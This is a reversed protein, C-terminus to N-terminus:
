RINLIHRPQLNVYYAGVYEAILTDLVTPKFFEKSSYFM